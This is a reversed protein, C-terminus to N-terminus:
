RKHMAESLYKPLADLAEARLLNTFNDDQFLGKLASSVFRLQRECVHAKKVMLEQRQTERRYTRVLEDPSPAKRKHTGGGRLTKGRGRRLEVLKRAKLLARGRLKGSEYAEAFSRQLQEDDSAAIEMAVGIPIEGREVAEILREEGNEILRILHSVYTESLGVKAAINGVSYGREKLTQIERALELNTRARRALNEVLSMIYRDHLPVDVVLAPVETQGLAAYAELRGQGCVLDYGDEGEGRPSVTIPKKLGVASINGVIEQFKTKNRVRANLVRIKSIVIMQVTKV